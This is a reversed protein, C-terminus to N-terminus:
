SPRRRRGMAFLLCAAAPVAIAAGAAVSPKPHPGKQEDHVDVLTRSPAAAQVVVQVDVAATGRILRGADASGGCAVVRLTAPGAKAASSDWALVFDATTALPDITVFDKRSDGVFLEVQFLATPAEARGHVEVRGGVDTGAEPSTIEVTAAEDGPAPCTAPQAGAPGPLLGILLIPGVVTLVGAVALRLIPGRM